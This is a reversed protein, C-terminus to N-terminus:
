MLMALLLNPELRQSQRLAVWRLLTETSDSLCGHVLRSAIGSKGKGRFDQPASLGMGCHCASRLEAHFRIQEKVM